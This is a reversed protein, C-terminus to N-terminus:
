ELEVSPWARPANRGMAGDVRLPQQGFLELSAVKWWHRCASRELLLRIEALENLYPVGSRHSARSPESDAAETRIL